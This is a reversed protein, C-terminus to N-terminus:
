TITYWKFLTQKGTHQQLFSFLNSGPSQLTLKPLGTWSRPWSLIREIEYSTYLINYMILDLQWYCTVTCCYSFAVQHCTWYTIIENMTHSLLTNDELHSHSLLMGITYTKLFCQARTQSSQHQQMYIWKLKLHWKIRSIIHWEAQVPQLTSKNLRGHRHVCCVPNSNFLVCLCQRMLDPFQSFPQVHIAPM